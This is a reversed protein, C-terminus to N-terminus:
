QQFQSFSHSALSSQSSTPKIQHGPAKGFAMQLVKIRSLLHSSPNREEFRNVAAQYVPILRTVGKVNKADSM